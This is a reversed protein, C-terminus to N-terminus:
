KSYDQKEIRMHRLQWEQRNMLMRQSVEKLKSFLAKSTMQM